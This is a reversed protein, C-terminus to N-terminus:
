KPTKFSNENKVQKKVRKKPKDKFGKNKFMTEQFDMVEVEVGKPSILTIM